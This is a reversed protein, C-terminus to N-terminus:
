SAAKRDLVRCMAVADLRDLATTWYDDFFSRLDAMTEPDVRYLRRRGDAEAVVLKAERLAALHQSM